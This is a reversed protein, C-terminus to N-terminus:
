VLDMTEQTWENYVLDVTEQTENKTVFTLYGMEYMKGKRNLILHKRITHPLPAPLFSLFCVKM